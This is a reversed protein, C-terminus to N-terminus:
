KKGFTSTVNSTTITTVGDETISSNRTTTYVLKTASLETITLVTENGNLATTTITGAVTNHVYDGVGAQPPLLETHSGESGSTNTTYYMTYGFNSGYKGESNFQLTGNEEGTEATFTSVVEGNVVTKGDTQLQKVFNWVGEVTAKEDIAKTSPTTSDDSCAALLVVAALVAVIKNM